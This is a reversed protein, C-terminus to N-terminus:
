LISKFVYDLPVEYPTCHSVTSYFALQRMRNPLVTLFPATLLWSVYAICFLSSCGAGRLSYFPLSQMDFFVCFLAEMRFAFLRRRTCLYVRCIFFLLTEMGFAFLPHRTRLYVSCILFCCRWELLSCLDSWM